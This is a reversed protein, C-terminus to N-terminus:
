ERLSTKHNFATSLKVSGLKDMKDKITLLKNHGTQSIQGVGHLQLNMFNLDAMKTVLLINLCFPGKMRIKQNKVKQM